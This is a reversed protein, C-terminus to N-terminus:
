ILSIEIFDVINKRDMLIFLEHLISIDASGLDLNITFKENTVKSVKFYQMYYESLDNKNIEKGEKKTKELYDDIEIILEDIIQIKNKIVRVSILFSLGYKTYNEIIKFNVKTKSFLKLAKKNSQVYKLFGSYGIKPITMILCNVNLNPHSPNIPSIEDKAKWILNFKNETGVINCSIIGINKNCYVGIINLNFYQDIVSNNIPIQQMLKYRINQKELFQKFFQSCPSISSIEAQLNKDLIFQFTEGFYEPERISIIEFRDGIKNIWYELAKESMKENSFPSIVKAKFDPILENEHAISASIINIPSNIHAIIRDILYDSKNKMNSQRLLM